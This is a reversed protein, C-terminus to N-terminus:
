RAPRPPTPRSAENRLVMAALIRQMEPATFVMGAGGGNLVTRAKTVLPALSTDVERTTKQADTEGFGPDPKHAVVVAKVKTEDLDDSLRLAGKETGQPQRVSLGPRRAMNFAIRLEEDLQVPNVESTLEILM